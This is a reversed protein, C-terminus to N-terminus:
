PEVSVLYNNSRNPDPTNSSVFASCARSKVATPPLTTELKLTLTQGVTMTGLKCTVFSNWEGVPTSATCQAPPSLLKVHLPFLVVLTADGATDDNDNHITVTCTYSKAAEAKITNIKVDASYFEEAKACGMCFFLLISIALYLKNM